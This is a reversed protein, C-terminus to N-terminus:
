ATPQISAEALRRRLHPALRALRQQRQAATLFRFGRIEGLCAPAGCACAFPSAMEYETTNYDFTVQEGAAIATVAILTRGDIAANPVCCHNLFRWPHRDMTTELDQGGPVEVHALDDIQISGRSPRDTVVGDIALITQGAPISVLAQLRYQGGDQAVAVYRPPPPPPPNRRGPVPAGTVGREV